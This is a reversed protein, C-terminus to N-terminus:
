LNLCFGDICVYGDTGLKGTAIGKDIGDMFYPLAGLQVVHMSTNGTVTWVPPAGGVRSVTLRSTGHYHLIEISCCEVLFPNPIDMIDM